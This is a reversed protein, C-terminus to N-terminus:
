YDEFNEFVSAWEEYYPGAYHRLLPFLWQAAEGLLNFNDDLPEELGPFNMAHELAATCVLFQGISDAIPFFDWAADGHMASYVISRNNQDDLKVIIPEGGEHAILFWDDHWSNIAENTEPNVNYGEMRWSLESSACLVIPNGVGQFAVSEKPCIADIYAKLEPPFSCSKEQELVLRRQANNHERLATQPSFAEILELAQHLNM